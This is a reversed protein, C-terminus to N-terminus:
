AGLAVFQRPDHQARFSSPGCSASAARKSVSAHKNALKELGRALREGSPARAVLVGPPQHAGADVFRRRGRDRRGRVDAGHMGPKLTSAVDNTMLIAGIPFGSGLAKSLVTIDGKVKYQEQALLTGTRGMGSQVEDIVLAARLRDARERLGKFFEQTAPVVGGEGQVPEVVIACV